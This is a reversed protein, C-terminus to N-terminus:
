QVRTIEVRRQRPSFPSVGPIMVTDALGLTEIRSKDVGQSALFEAVADARRQSLTLNAQQTGSRDTHGVIRVRKGQHQASSMQKALTALNARSGPSLVASGVAFQLPVDAAPNVKRPGVPTAPRGSPALAARPQAPRTTLQAPASPAGMKAISFARTAACTGNDLLIEGKACTVPGAQEEVPADLLANADAASFARVDHAPAALAPAACLLLAGTVLPALLPARLFWAPSHATMTM